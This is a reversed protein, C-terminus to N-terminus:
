GQVRLTQEMLERLFVVSPDQQAQEHWVLGVQVRPMAFPPPYMALPLWAVAREAFRRPMPAIAQSSAAALGAALFSPAVMGLRPRIGLSALQEIYLRRGVSGPGVIQMDVHLLREYLEPTIGQEGIEPHDRRALLVLEDTYLPSSQLDPELEEIRRLMIDISGELLRRPTDPRVPVVQLLASPARRQLAEMLLPVDTVQWHEGMAVVFRRHGPEFRKVQAVVGDLAAMAEALRPALAVASATPVLGRGSRVVLPDGVHQRLRALANSVASPTVHLRAAARTVSREELVVHLVLLLNLDLNTLNVMTISRM